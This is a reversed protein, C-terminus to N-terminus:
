PSTNQYLINQPIEGYPINPGKWMVSFGPVETVSYHVFIKHVGKELYVEGNWQPMRRMGAQEIIVKDDIKLQTHSDLRTYFTYLGSSPVDIYGELLVGRAFSNHTFVVNADSDSGDGPIDAYTLGNITTPSWRSFDYYNLGNGTNNVSNDNLDFNVNGSVFKTTKLGQNVPTGSLAPFTTHFSEQLAAQTALGQINKAKLSVDMDEEIVLSSQDMGNTIAGNNNTKVYDFIANAPVTTLAIKDNTQVARGRRPNIRQWQEKGPSIHTIRPVTTEAPLFKLLATDAKRGPFYVENAALGNITVGPDFILHIRSGNAISEVYKITHSNSFELKGNKFHELVLTQGALEYGAPLNMPTEFANFKDGDEKRLVRSVLASQTDYSKNLTRSGNTVNTGEVMWLDSKNSLSSSAAILATASVGNHNMVQSGDFSILYTDVRGDTLSVTVAVAKGSNITSREVSSIFSSGSGNMVEHVAVFTSKLPASGKRYLMLHAHLKSSDYEDILYNTYFTGYEGQKPFHTRSGLKQNDSFKFDVWFDKDSAYDVKKTDKFQNWSYPLSTATRSLNSSPYEQKIMGSGRLIYNHEEGGDVEFVDLTYSKDIDVTNQLLTRRYRNMMTGGTGNANGGQMIHSADVRGIQLGPLPAYVELRGTLDSKWHNQWGTGISVMNKNHPGHSYNQHGPFSLLNRGNGFLGMMLTDSHAHGNNAFDTHKSSFHLLSQTQKYPNNPTGDGLGMQGFGPLLYSISKHEIGYGYHEGGSGWASVNSEDNPDLVQLGTDNVGCDSGDPLTLMLAASVFNNLRESPPLIDDHTLPNTIKEIGTPPTWDVPDTYGELEEAFKAMGVMWFFHYNLGEASVSDNGFMGAQTNAQIHRLLVHATEPWMEGKLDNRYKSGLPHKNHDITPNSFMLNRYEDRSFSQAYNPNDIIGDNKNTDANDGIGDGDSDKSESAILPFADSADAVGDGDDDTDANNGQTDGDTDISETNDLPFADKSDPVGDNDDDIDDIDEIGDGDSDSGPNIPAATVTISISDSHTDGDDDTVTLTLINTGLVTSVYSFSANNSLLTTGKKWEYKRITGDSDNGSGIITISKNLEVGKDTGANATPAKNSSPTTTSKSSEDSGGGGGCATLSLAFISAM